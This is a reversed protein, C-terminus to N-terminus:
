DNVSIDYYVREGPMVYGYKDRAVSEAYEDINGGEVIRRLEDNKKIQEATASKIAAIEENKNSIEKNISFLSIAFYVCLAVICFSVIFSRNKRTKKEAM